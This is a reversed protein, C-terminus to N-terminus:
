QARLVVSTVISKVYPDLTAGSVLIKMYKQKNLELVYLTVASKSPGYSASVIKMGSGAFSETLKTINQQGKVLSAAVDKIETQTSKSVVSVDMVVGGSQAISLNANNSLTFNNVGSGAKRSWTTPVLLRFGDGEYPVFGAPVGPNQALLEELPPTQETQGPQTPQITSNEASKKGNCGAAILVVSLGVLTINRIRM